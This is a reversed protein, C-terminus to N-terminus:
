KASIMVSRDLKERLLYREDFDGGLVLSSDTKGSWLFSTVSEECVSLGTTIACYSGSLKAHDDKM